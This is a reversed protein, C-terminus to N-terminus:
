RSETHHRTNTVVSVRRHPGLARLLLFDRRSRNRDRGQNPVLGRTTRGPSTDASSATDASRDNGVPATALAPPQDDYGNHDHSNGHHKGTM